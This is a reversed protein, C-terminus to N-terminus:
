NEPQVLVPRTMRGHPSRLMALAYHGKGGNKRDQAALFLQQLPECAIFGTARFAGMPRDYVASTVYGLLSREDNTSKTKKSLTIECGNWSKDNCYQEVDAASPAFIMANVDINGRRPVVIIVRVLTPIPVPVIPVADSATKSSSRHFNFPEMYKEGRLVCPVQPEEDEEDGELKTDFLLEWRPQFPSKVGHKEYNFQKSKPKKAQVKELDRARADWYAQGAQTDPYDSPFSPQNLVTSLATDEELGIVLAGGFVLAKLLSPASTPSCILDWGSTHPFPENKKIALLHFPPSQVRIDDSLVGDKRQRYIEENLKHDKLFNREIQQRKSLSWLLSKPSAEIEMASDETQFDPLDRNTLVSPYNSRESDSGSTTWALLAQMEKMIAATEPEEADKGLSSLSLGSLPSEIMDTGIKPIVTVPPEKLLSFETSHDSLNGKRHHVLRPDKVTVSYITEKNETKCLAQLLNERNGIRCRVLTDKEDFGDEHDSSEDQMDEIQVDDPKSVVLSKVLEGALKGRLKFRSLQGRRDLMEVPEEVEQCAAAIATAAEMYAAPHVWLWLQRKTSEWNEHLKFEGNDFDKQLPRWMFTVPAIAGRPFENVSYLMSTGEENGALFKLGHFDSGNPDSVLQLAELIVQPLGYLEIVGYYSTDHLIAMKRVAQLSAAVGKDARHLPLIYGHQENMKMRKAHWVHTPLWRARETNAESRDQLLKHPRREHKRCRLINKKNSSPSARLRQPMKHAKFANARRRRQNKQKELKVDTPSTLPEHQSLEHLAQLEPARAGAFELVQLVRPGLGAM